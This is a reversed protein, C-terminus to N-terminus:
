AAVDCRERGAGATGEVRWRLAQAICIVHFILFLPVAFTPIMSMPLATMASTPVGRPDIRQALTGMTVAVVLDTIGLAQWLIFGARRAPTALKLGALAATAGITMDGWGAPLAFMRPLIGYTALVLFVFGELRL